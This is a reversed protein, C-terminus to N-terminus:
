DNPLTVGDLITPRSFSQRYDTAYYGLPEEGNGYALLSSAKECPDGACAGTADLLNVADLLKELDYNYSSSGGGGIAVVKKDFQCSNSLYCDISNGFLGDFQPSNDGLLPSSVISGNFEGGGGGTVQYDGLVIILGDFSPVGAFEVNGDIILVGGKTEGDDGPDVGFNGSHSYTVRSVKTYTSGDYEYNESESYEVGFDDIRQLRDGDNVESGDLIVSGSYDVWFYGEDDDVGDGDSDFSRLDTPTVFTVEGEELSGPLDNYVNGEGLSNRLSDIYEAMLSPSKFIEMDISSQVGGQYNCFRNNNVGADCVLIDQGDVPDSYDEHDVSTNSNGQIISEILAESAEPCGVQMAAKINGFVEEEGVIEMNSSPPDFSFKALCEEATEDEASAAVLPAGPGLALVALFEIYRYVPPDQTVEGIAAVQYRGFKDEGGSVLPTFFYYASLHSYDGSDSADLTVAHLTDAARVPAVKDRFEGAWAEAAAYEAAMGASKAARYNGSMSEELRTSQYSSLGLVLAVILFVLTVVLAVGDQRAKGNM